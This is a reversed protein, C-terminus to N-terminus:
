STPLPLRLESSLARLPLSTRLECRVYRTPLFTSEARHCSAEICRSESCDELRSPGTAQEGSRSQSPRAHPDCQPGLLCIPTSIPFTPHRLQFAHAPLCNESYVQRVADVRLPSVPHCTLKSLFSQEGAGFTPARRQVHQFPSPTSANWPCEGQGPPFCLEHRRPVPPM